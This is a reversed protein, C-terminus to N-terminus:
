CLRMLSNCVMTAAFIWNSYRKLDRSFSYLFYLALFAAFVKGISRFCM